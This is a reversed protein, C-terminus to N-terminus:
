SFLSNKLTPVHFTVVLPIFTLENRQIGVAVQKRSCLLKNTVSKM